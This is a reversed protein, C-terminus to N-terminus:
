GSRCTRKAERKITSLRYKCNEVKVSGGAGSENMYISYTRSREGFTMVRSRQARKWRSGAGQERSIVADDAFILM